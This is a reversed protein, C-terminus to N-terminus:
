VRIDLRANLNGNGTATAAAVPFLQREGVSNNSYSSATYASQQKGASSQDSAGNSMTGSTGAGHGTSAGNMDIRVEMPQNGGLRAQMEPLQAALVKALESHDLSIQASIVDKNATTSISINGFENSRMGVRMESQGISQILKATNIVPASQAAAAPASVAADPSKAAFPTVGAQMSASPTPTAPSTDQAHFPAVVSNAMTNTLSLTASQGQSSAGLQNQTGAPIDQQSITQSGARDTALQMHPMLGAANNTADKSEDKGNSSSVISQKAGPVSSFSSVSAHVTGPLGGGPQIPSILQSVAGDSANFDATLQAHQKMGVTNNTADKSEDKGNASSAISQKAGPISNFSSVSPHVTGTLGGGLQIPSVLQNVTGGSVNRDAAPLPQAVGTRSSVALDAPTDTATSALIASTSGSLAARLVPGQNAEPLVSLDANVAVNQVANSAEDQALSPVTDSDTDAAVNVVTSPRESSPATPAANQVGNADASSTSNEIGDFPPDPVNMQHPGASSQISGAQSPDNSSPGISSRVGAPQVTADTSTVAATGTGWFSIPLSASDEPVMQAQQATVVPQPEVAQMSFVLSKAADNRQPTDTAEGDESDPEQRRATKTNGANASDTASYAKSATLLSESFPQQPLVSSRPAEVGSAGVRGM